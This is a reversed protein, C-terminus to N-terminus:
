IVQEIEFNLEKIRDVVDAFEKEINRIIREKSEFNGSYEIIFDKIKQLQIKEDTLDSIFAFYKNKKKSNELQHTIRNHELAFMKIKPQKNLEKVISLVDKNLDNSDNFQSELTESEGVNLKDVIQFPNRHGITTIHKILWYEKLTM